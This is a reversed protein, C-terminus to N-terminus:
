LLSKSIDSKLDATLVRQTELLKEYLECIEGQIAIRLIQEEDHLAKEYNETMHYIDLANM